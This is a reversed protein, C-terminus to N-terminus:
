RLATTLPKVCALYANIPVFFPLPQYNSLSGLRSAKSHASSAGAKICNALHKLLVLGKSLAPLGACEM